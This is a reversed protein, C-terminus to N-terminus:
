SWRRTKATSTYNPHLLRDFAEALLGVAEIRDGAAEAAQAARVKDKVVQQPILDAMSVLDWDLGFVLQCADTLFATVEGLFTAVQQTGPIVGHHKLQVRVANLNRMSARGPLGQVQAALKDWYEDFQTKRALQVGAHDLATGYFLEVADHFDLIAASSM